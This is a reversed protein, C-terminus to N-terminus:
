ALGQAGLYSLAILLINDAALIRDSANASLEQWHQAALVIAPLVVLMWLALRGALWVAM